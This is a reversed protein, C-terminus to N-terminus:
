SPSGGSLLGWATALFATALVSIVLGAGFMLKRRDMFDSENKFYYRAVVEILFGLSYCLNALLGYIVIGIIDFSTVMPMLFMFFVGTFGVVINYIWRRKEWWGFASLISIDKEINFLDKSEKM